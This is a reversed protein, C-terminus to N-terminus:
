GDAPRELGALRAELIDIRELLDLALLAGAVNVGLDRRLRMIRLLRAAADDPFSSVTSTVDQGLVGLAILRHVLEPHLGSDRVVGEMSSLRTPNASSSHLVLFTRVTPRM